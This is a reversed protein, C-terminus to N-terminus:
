DERKGAHKIEEILKESEFKLINRSMGSISKWWCFSVLALICFSYISRESVFLSFTLEIFYMAIIAIILYLVSYVKYKKKNKM